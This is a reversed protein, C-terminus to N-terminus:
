PQKEKTATTTIWREILELAETDPVVTGLPPM